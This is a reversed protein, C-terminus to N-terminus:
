SLKDAFHHHIALIIKDARVSNYPVRVVFEYRQKVIDDQMLEKEIEDPYIAYFNAALSGPYPAFRKYQSGNFIGFVTCGVAAALHVSGTDVSLLCRAKTFVTLMETLSTKGTLNIVPHRYGECFANTYAADAGTGCVIVTWGYNEFLYKSVRIFNETSWIREKSRSGPFVVFYNDPMVLSLAPLCEPDVRTDTIASEKGTIFETFLRNRYFEFIPKEPHVFLNTYLNRDYGTEYSHTSERNAVMGLRAPAKAAKVISDDYRKDRSYAPNIVVNYRERYIHKLFHYRYNIKKKFQIKDMWYFRSILEKDLCLFLSKWSQNGCFHFEYGSYKESSVMEKIFPRWLMFDGIEDIRVILLKKVRGSKRPGLAALWGVIEYLIGKLRNM